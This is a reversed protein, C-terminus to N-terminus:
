LRWAYSVKVFMTASTKRFGSLEDNDIGSTSYGAFLVSRPNLQYSYLLQADIGRSRADINFNYLAPDRVTDRHIVSLRLSSLLSFQYTLRLDTLNTTFLEQGSIRLKEYTHGLRLLLHQNINYELNQGVRLQGGRRVNAFDIQDGFQGQGFYSFGNFARSRLSMANSSLNFRQGSFVQERDTRSFGM